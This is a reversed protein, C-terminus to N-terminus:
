DVIRLLIAKRDADQRNNVGLKRYINRNHFKLGSYSINCINCIEESSKAYHILHLIELEKKTLPEQLKIEPEMYDPYMKAMRDAESLVEQMFDSHLVSKKLKKLLPVIAIGEDAIVRVYHYEEAKQLAPLLIAEWRPNGLRYNLIAELVKNQVWYLERHYEECYLNMRQVLSYAHEMNGTAILARIKIIYCYRDPMQFEINEDPSKELWEKVRIMDGQMLYVWAFFANMNPQLFGANEREMKQRFRGAQDLAVNVQGRMLHQRCLLIVTVFCLEIRKRSEVIVYAENLDKMIKYPDVANQELMIEANSLAILGKGFKGYIDLILKYIMEIKIDEQKLFVSFDVTGNILSPTAGTISMKPIRIGESKVLKAALYVGEMRKKPHRHALSINLFVLRGKAIRRNEESISSDAIYEELMRHWQEAQYSNMSVSYLLSTWAIMTPNKKVMEEPLAFIFKRIQFLEIALSDQEAKKIVVDTVKDYLHAKSYYELAHKVDDTDEYYEAAMQYLNLYDQQTYAFSRKWIVYNKLIPDIQYENDGLYTVFSGISYAYEVLDVM